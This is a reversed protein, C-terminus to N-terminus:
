VDAIITAPTHTHATGFRSESWSIIECLLTPGETNFKNNNKRTHNQYKKGQTPVWFGASCFPRKGGRSHGCIKRFTRILSLLSCISSEELKQVFWAVWGNYAHAKYTHTNGRFSVPVDVRVCVCVCCVSSVVWSWTSTLQCQQTRGMTLRWHGDLDDQIEAERGPIQGENKQKQHGELPQSLSGFDDNLICIHGHTYWQLTSISLVAFVRQPPNCYLTLSSCSITRPLFQYLVTRPICNCLLSSSVTHALLLVSFCM